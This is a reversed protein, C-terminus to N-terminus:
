ISHIIDQVAPQPLRQQDGGTDGLGQGSPPLIGQPLLFVL